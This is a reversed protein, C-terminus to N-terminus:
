GAFKSHLRGGLFCFEYETAPAADAPAAYFLCTTGPDLKGGPETRLPTGYQAEVDERRTDLPVNRFQKFPILKSQHEDKGRLVLVVGVAVAAVVCVLVIVLLKRPIADHDDTRRVRV